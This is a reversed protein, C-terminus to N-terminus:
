VTMRHCNPNQHQCNYFTINVKEQYGDKITKLVCFPSADRDFSGKCVACNFEKLEELSRRPVLQKIKFRKLAEVGNFQPVYENVAMKERASHRRLIASRTVGINLQTGRNISTSAVKYIKFKWDKEKLDRLQVEIICSEIMSEELDVLNELIIGICPAVLFMSSQATM